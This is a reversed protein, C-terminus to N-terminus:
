PVTPLTHQTDRESEGEHQRAQQRPEEDEHFQYFSTISNYPQPM